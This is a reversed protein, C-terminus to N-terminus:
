GEAVLLVWHCVAADVVLNFITPYLLDGQKVGGFVKFDAGYHGGLRDVVTLRDWYARPPRFVRLKM